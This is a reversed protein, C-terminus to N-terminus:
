LHGRSTPLEAPPLPATTQDYVPMGLDMARKREGSAGVSPEWGPIMLVADCREMLELTGEIFFSDGACTIAEMHATNMHPIVPYWGKEIALMGFYKATEINLQVQEDSIGRYRGAIYLLKM